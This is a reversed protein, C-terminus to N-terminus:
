FEWGIRVGPQWGNPTPISISAGFLAAMSALASSKSYVYAISPEVYLGGASTFVLKYGAKLAITLGFFGGGDTDTDGDVSFLNFGLSAGIFLKDLSESMPYWCGLANIGFYFVPNNDGAQGFYMDLDGGISFHPVILREYEMALPFYFLDNDSDSAIFGKFMTFVDLSVANSYGTQYSPDWNAPAEEGTQQAFAAGACVLASLVIVTFM